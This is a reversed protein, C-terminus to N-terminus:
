TSVDVERLTRTRQRELKPSGTKYFVIYMREREGTVGVEEYESGSDNDVRGTEGGDFM